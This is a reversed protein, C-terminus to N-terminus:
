RGMQEVARKARARVAVPLLTDANIASFAARAEMKKGLGHYADAECWRLRWDRSGMDEIARAQGLLKQFEGRRVLANWYEVRLDEDGPTLALARDFAQDAGEADDARACLRGLMRWAGAAEAHAEAFERAAPLAQQVAELQENGEPLFLLQLATLHGPDLALAKQVYERAAELNKLDRECQALEALLNPSDPLRELQALLFEKAEPVRELHRLARARAVVAPLGVPQAALARDAAALMVDFRREDEHYAAVRLFHEAPYEASAWKETLYQAVADKRVFVLSKPDLPDEYLKVLFGLSVLGDMAPQCQADAELASVYQELADDRNGVLVLVNAYAVHYEAAGSWVEAIDSFLKLADDSRGLAAYVTALNQKAAYDEKDVSCVLALHKAATNFDGKEFAKQADTWFPMKAMYAEYRKASEPQQKRLQAGAMALFQKVYQQATEHTLGQMGLEEFKAKPMPMQAPMGHRRAMKEDLNLVVWEGTEAM